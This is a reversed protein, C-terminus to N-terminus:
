DTAFHPHNKLIRIILNDSGSHLIIDGETHFVHTDWPFLHQDPDTLYQLAGTQGPQLPSRGM